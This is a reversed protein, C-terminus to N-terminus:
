WNFGLEHGMTIIPTSFGLGQKQKECGPIICQPGAAPWKGLAPLAASVSLKFKQHM